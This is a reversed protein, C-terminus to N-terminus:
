ALFRCLRVCTEISREPSIRSTSTDWGVAALDVSTTVSGWNSYTLSATTLSEADVPSSQSPTPPAQCCMCKGPTPCSRDHSGNDCHSALYSGAPKEVPRACSHKCKPQAPCKGCDARHESSELSRCGTLQCLAHTQQLCSLMVLAIGCAAVIRKAINLRYFVSLGKRSCPPEEPITPM